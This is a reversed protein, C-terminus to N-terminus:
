LGYISVTERHGPHVVIHIDTNILHKNFRFASVMYELLERESKRNNRGHTGIIPMYVPFRQSRSNCYEIVSQLTIMYEEDTTKPHLDSNFASMGVFFYSIKDEPTKKFEAVTGAPYRKLNGKRKDKKSLIRSPKIQRNEILDNQLAANLMEATYGNTCIRKVAMGHITTESILDNDVLTDFCRNATIVINKHEGDNEFLNGYEVYVRHANDADIVVIKEKSLICKCKIAFMILWIVAVIFVSILLRKLFKIDEPFINDLGCLFGLIQFLAIVSTTLVSASKALYSFNIKIQKYISIVMDFINMKSRRFIAAQPIMSFTPMCLQWPLLSEIPSSQKINM